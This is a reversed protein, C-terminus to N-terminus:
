FVLLVLWCVRCPLTNESIPEVMEARNQWIYVFWAKNESDQLPVTEFMRKHTHQFTSRRPQTKKERRREIAEAGLCHPRAPYLARPPTEKKQGQWSRYTCIHAPYDRVMNSAQEVHGGNLPHALPQIHCLSPRSCVITGEAACQYCMSHSNPHCKARPRSWLCHIHWM